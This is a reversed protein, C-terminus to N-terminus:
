PTGSRRLSGIALSGDAEAPASEEAPVESGATPPDELFDKTPIFFLGGTVPRSFDLIRDHNGPPDGVFMNNLMQEIVEPTAAYGAFYTGYERTGVTGFPMNDRLIQRQEGDPGTVTNLAVHSNSPQVAEALEIDDLKRRGIAKEQEEVPLANWAQLDHLYKQVVLYSGGAYAPDEPGIIVADAAAVGTPNETGDVFGLLDREDFYRFGHVEDVVDAAGDLRDVIQRALEFCLDPRRARLHVLLDGPTTVTVHVAGAFVPLPHLGIPAPLDYLRSWLGAGIGLVCSLNGEPERFGVSRTLGAADALMERVADESGERVTLVLFIAAFAPLELVDQPV